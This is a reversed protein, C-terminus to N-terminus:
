PGRRRVRPLNTEEEELAELRGPPAQLGSRISAAPAPAEHYLFVRSSHLIDDDIRPHIKRRTGPIEDPRPIGIGLVAYFTAYCSRNVSSRLISEQFLTTSADLSERAQELRYAVLAKTNETTM